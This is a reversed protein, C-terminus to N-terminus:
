FFLIFSSFEPILHSLLNSSISLCSETGKKRPKLLSEGNESVISFRGACIEFRWTKWELGFLTFFFFFFFFGSVM